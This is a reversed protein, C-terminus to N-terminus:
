VDIKYAYFNQHWHTTTSFIGTSLDCVVANTEDYDSTWYVDTVDWISYAGMDGWEHHLRGYEAPTLLYNGHNLIADSLHYKQFDSTVFTDIFFNWEVTDNTILDTGRVTCIQRPKALITVSCDGTTTGNVALEASSSVAEWNVMGSGGRTEILFSAGPWAISPQNQSFTHNSNVVSKIQLNDTAEIFTVFSEASIASNGKCEVTVSVKEAISNAIMALSHGTGDTVSSYIPSNTESFFATNSDNIKFLVDVGPAPYFTEADFATADVENLSERNAQANDKTVMLTLVYPDTTTVSTNNKSNM